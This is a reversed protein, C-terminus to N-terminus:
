LVDSMLRMTIGIRIEGATPRIQFALEWGAKASVCSLMAAFLPAQARLTCTVTPLRRREAVLVNQTCASWLIDWVLRELTRQRALKTGVRAGVRKLPNPSRIVFGAIKIVIVSYHDVRAVCHVHLRQTVMRTVALSIWPRNVDALLVVDRVFGVSIYIRVERRSPVLQLSLKWLYEARERSWM